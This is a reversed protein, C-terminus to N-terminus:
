PGTILLKTASLAIGFRTETSTTKEALNGTRDNITYAIGATLGSVNENVGGIVSVTGDSGDSIAETSLGFASATTGFPNIYHQRTSNVCTFHGGSSDPGIVFYKHDTSNTISGTMLATSQVWSISTGNVTGLYAKDKIWAIAKDKTTNFNLALGVGSDDEIDTASGVTISTGSVTGVYTTVKSGNHYGLIVKDNEDDFTLRPYAQGDTVTGTEVSYTTGFGVTTGSVTGVRMKIDTNDERWACVVKSNTTDYTLSPNQDSTSASGITVESGASASSATVAVNIVNLQYTGSNQSYALIVKQQNPDYVMGIGHEGRVNYQLNTEGVDQTIDYTSTNVSLIRYKLYRSDGADQHVLFFKSISPVWIVQGCYQTSGSQIEFRAGTEFDGTTTNRKGAKLELSGSLTTVSLFIDNTTDLAVSADNFPTYFGSIELHGIFETKAANGDSDVSVLDGAAIAGSATFTQSGGAPITITGPGWSATSDSYLLSQGDTPATSSVNTLDSLANGIIAQAPGLHVVYINDTGSPPASTFTLTKNSITYAVNPDQIVNAVVVRANTASSAKSLTFETTSGDGSFTDKTTPTSRYAPANGQYAM